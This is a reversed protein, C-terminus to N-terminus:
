AAEKFWPLLPASTEASSCAPCRPVRLVLHAALAARPPPALAYLRGAVPTSGALWALAVLAAVGAAAADLAPASPRYAPEAEVAADDAGYGLCSRRRLSYCEGCATEGPVVLPGVAAIRGDFPLMQLWVLGSALARENWGALAPLEEGAPAVVALDAKEPPLDLEARVVDCGAERLLRAVREGSPAAGAVAVLAGDLTARLAHPPPAGPTVAALFDATVDRSAPGETLLGHRGLLALAADVAEAAGAGLVGVIEPVTREGDLLPLLAPVLREVARGSLVVARHEYELVIAGDSRGLRYWPKLLPREPLGAM